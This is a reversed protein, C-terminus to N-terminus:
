RSYFKNNSWLLIVPRIRSFIWYSTASFLVKWVFFIQFVPKTLADHCNSKNLTQSRIKPICHTVRVANRRQLLSSIWIKAFKAAVGSFLLSRWVLTCHGGAILIHVLILQLSTGAMIRDQRILYLLFESTAYRIQCYFHTESSIM